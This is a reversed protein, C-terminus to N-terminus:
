LTLVLVLHTGKAAWNCSVCWSLNKYESRGVTCKILAPHCAHAPQTAPVQAATRKGIAACLLWPCARPHMHLSRSVQQNTNAAAPDFAPPAATIFRPCAYSFLEDFVPIEGRSM